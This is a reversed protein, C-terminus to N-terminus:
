VAIVMVLYCRTKPVAGHRSAITVVGAYIEATGGGIKRTVAGSERIVEKVMQEFGYPDLGTISNQDRAITKM